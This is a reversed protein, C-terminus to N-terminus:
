TASQRSAMAERREQAGRARSAPAMIRWAAGCHPCETIGDAGHEATALDGACSGCRLSKLLISVIERKNMVVPHQLRVAVLAIIVIILPLRLGLALLIQGSAIETMISLATNGVLLVAVLLVLVRTSMGLASLKQRIQEREAEPITLWNSPPRREPIPYVIEVARGKDDIGSHSNRVLLGDLALAVMLAGFPSRNWVPRDGPIENPKDELQWAASCEPCSVIGASDAPIGCLAYGCSACHRSALLTERIFLAAGPVALRRRLLHLGVLVLILPGWIMWPSPLFLSSVFVTTFISALYLVGFLIKSTGRHSAKM